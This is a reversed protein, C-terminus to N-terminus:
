GPIMADSFGISLGASIAGGCVVRRARLAVGDLILEHISVFLMAGAAFALFYANLFPAIEWLSSDRNRRTRRAALVAAGFLFQEPTMAPMSM